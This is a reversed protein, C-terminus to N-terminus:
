HIVRAGEESEEWRGMGKEVRGGEGGGGRRWVGKELRGEGGWGGGGMCHGEEEMM